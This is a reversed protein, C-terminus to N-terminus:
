VVLPELSSSVYAQSKGRNSLLVTEPLCFSYSCTCLKNNSVCQLAHHAFLVVTQRDVASASRLHVGSSLPYRGGRWPPAHPSDSAPCLGGPSTRLSSRATLLHCWDTVRSLGGM